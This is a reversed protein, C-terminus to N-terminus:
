WIPVGSYIARNLYVNSMTRGSIQQQPTSLYYRRNMQERLSTHPTVFSNSRYNTVSPSGTTPVGTTPGTSRRTMGGSFPGTTPLATSLPPGSKGTHGM